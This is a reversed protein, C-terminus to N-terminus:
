DSWDLGVVLQDALSESRDTWLLSVVAAALVPVGTAGGSSESPAPDFNFNWWLEVVSLEASNPLSGALSVWSVSNALLVM